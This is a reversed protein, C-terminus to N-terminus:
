FLYTTVERYKLKRMLLHSYDYYKCCLITLKLGNGSSNHRTGFPYKSIAKIMMVFLWNYVYLVHHKALCKHVYIWQNLGRLIQSSVHACVAQVLIAQMYSRSMWNLVDGIITNHQYWFCSLLSFFFFPFFLHNSLFENFDSPIRYEVLCLAPGRQNM